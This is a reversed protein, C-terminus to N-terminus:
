LCALEHDCGHVAEERQSVIQHFRSWGHQLHDSEKDVVNMRCVCLEYVKNRKTNENLYYYSMPNLDNAYVTIGRKAAPLAFPGVGCFMDALICNKADLSQVM